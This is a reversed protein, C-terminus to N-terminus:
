QSITISGEAEIKGNYTITVKWVGPDLPGISSKIYYCNYETGESIDETGQLVGDKYIEMTAKGSTPVTDKLDALMYVDDSSKATTVTSDFSCSKKTTDYTSKSFTIKGSGGGFLSGAVIAIVAVVVIGIIAPGFRKALSPKPAVPPVGWAAQDPSPPTGWGPQQPPPPPAGWGPQQAPPPPAGWGPQQAPQQNNPDM